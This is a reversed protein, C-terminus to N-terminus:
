REKATIQGKLTTEGMEGQKLFFLKISEFLRRSKIKRVLKQNRLIDHLLIFSKMKFRNFKILIQFLIKKTSKSSKNSKKIEM